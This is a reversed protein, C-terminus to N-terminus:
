GGLLVDQYVQLIGEIHEELSLNTRAYEVCHQRMHRRDHGSRAFHLIIKEALAAGNGVPFLYGTRGPSILEPIGGFASGVVPTGARLSSYITVPSNEHCVSPVVTLDAAGFLNDIEDFPVWGLLRVVPGYRRFQELYRGEGVGAVIVNLREIHRLMIPIAQLLVHAGKIPNGGGVFVITRHRHAVGIAARLESHHLEESM